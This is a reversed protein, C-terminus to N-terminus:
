THTFSHRRDRFRIDFSPADDAPKRRNVGGGGSTPTNGSALTTTDVDCGCDALASVVSGRTASLVWMHVTSTRDSREIVICAHIGAISIKAKRQLFPRINISCVIRLLSQDINFREHRAM